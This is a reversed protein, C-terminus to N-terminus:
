KTPNLSQTKIQEDFYKYYGRCLEDKCDLDGHTRCGLLQYIIRHFKDGLKDGNASFEGKALALQGKRYYNLIVQSTKNSETRFANQWDAELNGIRIKEKFDKGFEPWFELNHTDVIAPFYPAMGDERLFESPENRKKCMEVHEYWPLIDLYKLVNYTLNQAIKKAEKIGLITGPYALKHKQIYGVIVFERNGEQEAQYSLPNVSVVPTTRLDKKQLLNNM